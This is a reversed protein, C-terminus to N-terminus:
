INLFEYFVYVSNAKPSRGLQLVQWGYTQRPAPSAGLRALSPITDFIEYKNVLRWAIGVSINGKLLQVIDLYKHLKLIFTM